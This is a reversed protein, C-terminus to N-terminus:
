TREKGAATNIPQSAETLKGQEPLQSAFPGAQAGQELLREAQLTFWAKLTLGRKALEAYVAGKLSPAVEVVIRGSEGRAM